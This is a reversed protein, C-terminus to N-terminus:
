SFTFSWYSSMRLEIAYADVHCPGCNMNDEIVFENPSMKLVARYGEYLKDNSGNPETTSLIGDLCNDLLDLITDGLEIDRTLM